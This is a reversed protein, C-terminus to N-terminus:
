CQKKLYFCGALLNHIKLFWTLPKIGWLVLKILSKKIEILGGAINTEIKNATEKM